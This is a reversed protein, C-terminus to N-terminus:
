QVFGRQGYVVGAKMYKETGRAQMAIAPVGEWCGFVDGCRVDM